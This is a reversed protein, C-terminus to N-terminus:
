IKEPVNLNESLYKMLADKTEFVRTERRPDEDEETRMRTLQEANQAVGPFILKFAERVQAKDGGKWDEGAGADNITRLFAGMGDVLKDIIDDSSMGFFPNESPEIAPVPKPKQLEQLQVVYGNDMRAIVVKMTPMPAETYDSPFAPVYGPHKM